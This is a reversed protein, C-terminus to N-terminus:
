TFTGMTQQQIMNAVFSFEPHIARRQIIFDGFEYDVIPSKMAIPLLAWLLSLDCTGSVLFNTFPLRGKEM